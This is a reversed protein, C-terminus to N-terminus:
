FGSHDQHNKSNNYTVPVVRKSSCSIAKKGIFCVGTLEFLITASFILVKENQCYFWCVNLSTGSWFLSSAHLHRLYHGAQLEFQMGIYTQGESKGNLGQSFGM